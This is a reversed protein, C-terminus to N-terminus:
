HAAFTELDTNKVRMYEEAARSQRDFNKKQARGAQRSEYDNRKKRDPGDEGLRQTSSPRQAM